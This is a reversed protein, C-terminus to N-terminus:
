GRWGRTDVWDRQLSCSALTGGAGKLSAAEGRPRTGSIVGVRVAGQLEAWGSLRRVAFRPGCEWGLGGQAPGRWHVADLLVRPSVIHHKSELKDSVSLTRSGKKWMWQVQQVGSEGHASHHHWLPGVTETVVSQCKHLTSYLRPGIPVHAVHWKVTLFRMSKDGNASDPRRYLICMMGCRDREALRGLTATHPGEWGPCSCRSFEVSVDFSLKDVAAKM